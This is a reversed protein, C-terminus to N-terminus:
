PAPAPLERATDDDEGAPPPSAILVGVLTVTLALGILALRTARSSRSM